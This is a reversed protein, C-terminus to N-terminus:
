MKIPKQSDSIKKFVNKLECKSEVGRSRYEHKEVKVVNRTM